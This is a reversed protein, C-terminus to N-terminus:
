DWVAGIREAETRGQALGATGVAAVATASFDMLNGGAAAQTADDFELLEVEAGADRLAGMELDLPGRLFEEAGPVVRSIVSVIVVKDHGQVLGSNTGSLVGGDMYRRDGITIPPFLAPM